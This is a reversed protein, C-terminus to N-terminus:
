TTTWRASAGVDFHGGGGCEMDVSPAMSSYGGIM